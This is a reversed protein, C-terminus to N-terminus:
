FRKIIWALGTSQSTVEYLFVVCRCVSCTIRMHIIDGNWLNCSSLLTTKLFCKSVRKWFHANEPGCFTYIFPWFAHFTETKLRFPTTYVARSLSSATCHSVVVALWFMNSTYYVIIQLPPRPLEYLLWYIWIPCLILGHGLERFQENIM